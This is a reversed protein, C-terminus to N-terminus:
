LTLPRTEHRPVYLADLSILSVKDPITRESHGAKNTFANKLTDVLNLATEDNKTLFTYCQLDDGRNLKCIFTFLPGQSSKSAEPETLRIFTSREVQGGPNLFNVCKMAATIYLNQIPFWYVIPRRSGVLQLQIGSPYITLWANIGEIEDSAHAPYANRLPQILADSGTAGPSPASHGLYFVNSSYLTRFPETDM